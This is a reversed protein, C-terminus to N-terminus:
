QVDDQVFLITDDVNQFIAIGQHILHPVLGVIHGAEQAKKIMKALNEAALNFIYSTPQLTELQLHM